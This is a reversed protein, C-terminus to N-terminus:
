LSTVDQGNKRIYVDCVTQNDLRSCSRNMEFVDNNLIMYIKEGRDLTGADYTVKVTAPNDGWSVEYFHYLDSFNGEDFIIENLTPFKNDTNQDSTYYRRVKLTYNFDPDVQKIADLYATESDNINSYEVIENLNTNSNFDSCGSLALLLVLFFLSIWKLM